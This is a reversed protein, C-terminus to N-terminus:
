LSRVSFIGASLLRLVFTLLHSGSFWRAVSVVDAHEQGLELLVKCLEVKRDLRLKAFLGSQLRSALVARAAALADEQFCRRLVKVYVDWPKDAREHLLDTATIDLSALVLVAFAESEDGGGLWPLDAGALKEAVPLLMQAKAASTVGELSRLLALKMSLLSCCNVHSLLFCLISQKFASHKKSEGKVPLLHQQHLVRLYSADNVLHERSDELAQIYRNFDAWDLYQLDATFSLLVDQM